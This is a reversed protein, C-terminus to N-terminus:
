VIRNSCLTFREIESLSKSKATSQKTKSRQKTTHQQYAAMNPESVTEQLDLSSSRARGSTNDSVSSVSAQRTKKPSAGTTAQDTYQYDSAKGLLVIGLLVKLATLSFVAFM